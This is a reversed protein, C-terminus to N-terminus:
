HLHGDEDACLLITGHCESLERKLLRTLYRIFNETDTKIDTVLNSIFKEIEQGSEDDERITSMLISVANGKSGLVQITTPSSKQILVAFQEADLTLAEEISIATPSRLFSFVGYSLTEGQGCRQVFILSSEGTLPACDKLIKKAAEESATCDGINLRSFGPLKKAFSIIDDTFVIAPSLEVGEEKYNWLKGILGSIVKNSYACDKGEREFFEALEGKTSVRLSVTKHEITM